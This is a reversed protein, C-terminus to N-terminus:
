LYNFTKRSCIYSLQIFDKDFFIKYWFQAIYLISAPCQMIEILLYSNSYSFIIKLFELFPEFIFINILLLILWLQLWLHEAVKFSM